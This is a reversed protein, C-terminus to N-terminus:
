NPRYTVLLVMDQLDYGSNACEADTHTLEMYVIVDMPGIKIKGAADLYPGLFSELSPAGYDPLNSPPTDGNVLTRVNQTGSDSTFNPGWANDYFYRGGFKLSQGVAVKDTYVITNPNVDHNTGYFIRSYSGNGLKVQAETPVYTFSTPTAGSATVGAGLVRVDVYLEQNSTVTAPPTITVYDKVTSPYTIQWTLNALTDPSLLNDRTSLTGVPAAPITQGSVLGSLLSCTTIIVAATAARLSTKM